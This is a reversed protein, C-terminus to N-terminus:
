VHILSLDNATGYNEQIPKWDGPVFVRDDDYSGRVGGVEISYTIKVTPITGKWEWIIDYDGYIIDSNEAIKWSVETDNPETIEIYGKIRFDADSDDPAPAHGADADSVRVRVTHSIADPPIGDPWGYSGGDAGNDVVGILEWDEGNKTYELKVEDVAGTCTWIITCPDFVTFTQGGGGNPYTINLDATINFSGSQAVVDDKEDERIDAIKIVVDDSAEDPINWTRSAESTDGGAVAGNSVIGDNEVITNFQGEAGGTSYTIKVTPITGKWGWTISPTSDIDWEDNVTDGDVITLLEFAAADAPNHTTAAGASGAIMLVAAVMITLAYKRMTGEGKLKPVENDSGIEKKTKSERGKMLLIRHGEQVGRREEDIPGTEVAFRGPPAVARDDGTGFSRVLVIGLRWGFSVQVRRPM